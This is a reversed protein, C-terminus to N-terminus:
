KEPIFWWTDLGFGHYLKKNPYGISKSIAVQYEPSYWQPILYHKYTLVRDLARMATVLKSYEKAQSIENLLFDIIPDQVGALNKSGPKNAQSSHWYISLKNGPVEFFPYFAGALMDFNQSNLHEVYTAKDFIQLSAEIGIKKLNKVFGNIFRAYFPSPLLINIKFPQGTYRHFLKGKKMVWGSEKLLELSKKIRDRKCLTQEEQNKEWFKHTFFDEPLKGKFPSLLKEEKKSAAKPAQFDSGTHYSTLRKFTDNFINKNIWHFDLMLALAKRVRLDKFLPNQLNFLIGKMGSNRPHPIKVIQILKKKLAPINHKNKGWESKFFQRVDLQAATLAQFSSQPSHFFDYSIIDFNYKGKNVPINEGWWNPVRVYDVHTVSSSPVLKYPGSGLYIHKMRKKLPNRALDKKSLIFIETGLLFAKEKINGKSITFKVGNRDVKEASVIDRLISSYYPTSLKKVANFTAIVDEPTIPSGDHFVASPRLYFTFSLNDKSFTIYQALYGYASALEDEAKSLLTCFTKNLGSIPWIKYFYPNFCDAKGFASLRLKGGKKADLCVYDFNEFRKQHKPTKYVSFGTVKVAFTFHVFLFCHAILLFITIIHLNKLFKNLIISGFFIM